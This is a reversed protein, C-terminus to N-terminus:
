ICFRTIARGDLLFLKEINFRRCLPQVDALVVQVTAPLLEREGVFIIPVQTEARPCDIDINEFFAHAQVSGAVFTCSAVTSWLRPARTKEHCYDREPPNSIVAIALFYPFSRFQRFGLLVVLLSFAIQFEADPFQRRLSVAAMGKDPRCLPADGDIL